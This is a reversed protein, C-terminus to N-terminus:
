LGIEIKVKAHIEQEDRDEGTASPRVSSRPTTPKASSAGQTDEDEFHDKAEILLKAEQAIVHANGFSVFAQAYLKANMQLKGQAVLNEAVKLRAEAQLTATVGLVEKKSEIFKQVEAIKNEAATLRGMAASAVNPSSGVEKEARAVDRAVDDAEAHVKSALVRASQETAGKQSSGISLLIREHAKLSAQFHSVIDVAKDADREEFERIRFQVKDAHEQFNEAIQARVDASLRAKAGLEEAEELKTTALDAELAAKAKAGFAVWGRVPENVHTKIAYLLEGPLSGQAALSTGGGLLIIVILIIPM